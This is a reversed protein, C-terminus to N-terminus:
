VCFNILEFWEACCFGLQTFALTYLPHNQYSLSFTFQATSNIFHTPSDPVTFALTITRTSDVSYQLLCILPCTPTSHISSPQHTCSHVSPWIFSYATPIWLCRSCAHGGSTSYLSDSESRVGINYLGIVFWRVVFFKPTGYIKWILVIVYIFINWFVYGNYSYKYAM